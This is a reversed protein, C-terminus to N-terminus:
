ARPLERYASRSASISRAILGSRSATTTPHAASAAQRLVVGAAVAVSGATGHWAEAGDADCGNLLVAFEDGGIRAAYDGARVETMLIEGFAVDLPGLSTTLMADYLKGFHMKFFVNWTSDYVAGNMASVALLAPAVFALFSVGAVDGVLSGLGVGMAFLYFLPECFGSVVTLWARRNVLLSREVLVHARGVYMGAPVVRLLMM